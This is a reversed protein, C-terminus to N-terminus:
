HILESIYWQEKKNNPLVREIILPIINNNIELQAVEKPTLHECNKIMPKAGLTLQQSRDELLRVYEYKTLYPKTIREDKSVLSTDISEGSQRKKGSVSTSEDIDDTSTTDIEDDFIIEDHDSEEEENDAYKYICKEEYGEAEDIDDADKGKKKESTKVKKGEDEDGEIEEIEEIEEGEVDEIEEVGEGMDEDDIENNDNFNDDENDEAQDDITDETEEGKRIKKIQNIINVEDELDLDELNEKGQKEKTIKIASEKKSTSKHNNVDNIDDVVINIPKKNTPKGKAQKPM